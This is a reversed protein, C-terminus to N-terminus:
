TMLGTWGFLLMRKKARDDLFYKELQNIVHEPTEATKIVTDKFYILATCRLLTRQLLPFMTEKNSTEVGYQTGIIEIKLEEHLQTLSLYGNDASM